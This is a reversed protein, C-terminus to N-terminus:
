RVPVPPIVHDVLHAATQVMRRGNCSPCVGRGKCSFAVVFGQGCGTCLGRAFGLCLIGCELHGRLVEEVYAPVPRRHEM